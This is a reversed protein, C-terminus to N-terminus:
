QSRVAVRYIKHRVPDVVWVSGFAYLIDGLDSEAAEEAETYDVARCAATITNTRPDLRFVHETASVWVYGGGAAVNGPWAPMVTPMPIEVTAKNTSADVRTVSHGPPDSVWLAGYGFDMREPTSGKSILPITATVRNTMPDVRLVEDSHHALVWISGAGAKVDTPGSAGIRAAVARLARDARVVDYGYFEAVWVSGFASTLEIPGDVDLSARTTGSRPDVAFVNENANDVAFLTRDDGAIPNEFQTGAGNALRFRQSIRNTSPDIEAVSGDSTFSLWLRDGALTLKSPAGAVPITALLPLRELDGKTGPVAPAPSKSASDAGSCDAAVLVVLAFAVRM